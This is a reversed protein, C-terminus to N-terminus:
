PYTKIRRALLMGQEPAWLPAFPDGIIRYAEMSSETKPNSAIILEGITRAGQLLAKGIRVAWRMNDSHLTPKVAAFGAASV